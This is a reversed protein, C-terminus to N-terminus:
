LETGMQLILFIRQCFLQKVVSPLFLTDDVVLKTRWSKEGSNGPILIGQSYERCM